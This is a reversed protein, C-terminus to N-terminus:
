YNFTLTISFPNTNEIKKKKIDLINKAFSHQLKVITILSLLPFSLNVTTVLLFTTKLCLM